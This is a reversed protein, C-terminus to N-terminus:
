RSVAKWMAGKTATLEVDSKAVLALRLRGMDDSFVLKEADEPLLALTVTNVTEENVGEAQMLTGGANEDTTDDTEVATLNQGVALVKARPLVIRTVAQTLDGQKVEFTALVAVFDGPKVFGSVGRVPNDEVSVALHGDPVSYAAGAESSFQFDDKTVQEGRTMPVASVQGDITAFSSVAQDAVYQRAVQKKVIMKAKVAEEATTGLPVDKEIVLIEVPQTGAELTARMSDLYRGVFFAALVGLVLALVLILIKSRM